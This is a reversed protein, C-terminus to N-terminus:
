MFDDAMIPCFIFAFFVSLQPILRDLHDREIMGIGIIYM